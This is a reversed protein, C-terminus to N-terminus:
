RKSITNTIFDDSETGTDDSFAIDSIVINPATQDLTYEQDFTTNNDAIDTIRFILDHTGTALPVDDWIISTSDDSDIKATIDTWILGADDSAVSGYLIDGGATDLALDLTASITQTATNTIFDDSETGTDDSFAIASIVINPATQDLTYEQDFTTNNDAIDTIRFILDHTGTALPVDDWIISTSDDSDIKATIDTWILGADDSAVSGYLIDGGATDLALDLTASITQTATNTIFDDSKTGTDNSFSVASFDIDPATQDLTYEQDFTTNNDAIDTIRFILDHTGTALPVDDWIISTSNSADIKATIDTWILGADDSAVSGYLIDGGATDLALDLTASITQTATNTIFDDSETGTDDSFAIDSIVINPATQDLTYEQDFTTNNDAIDTIRFILDHTGTALPVDDWIISTSDDSDIKATIDTWILGADDSAVSGYLIDGGDIDLAASLTASITQEATNTIFDDSETGTDDSFAIDSIVINPATQDLTYEQDFTTNNDAIDTIRFILDHTGTALPVDDWIISTSDDSDIKATIDTWILGADDSAVSGYLIDGGATDLALDLTASITQTATNTIFDDSETGTDDSFAIASIVINPATQDLTYEQDFTTNNDAIDTIRFILDHTGTALPVDDWIISTSDDSDIKATIDTWILGADDSAVSGYLIDGGATDLALDLTASITQTATNTIFDDSETGTDDSFAIASIVINPATQDLTYEQDFTTNNDAIDTIRFILDHTGTALPVDDWIISTSDDSDIKATIDTWILGADDSAVSGYLIDGGATDLALDLTASITQTATNTIFDDSETGTDDSFAIASIVINPATQDLTYEQDFTTNNDAIDTIRFILDHTGTALPVDDWIISTSDDSDIKATIDTWILGADDSAVSGYLIDGGATDLALDLTASITQTATNTIFDDSETGTDDSFAIDSIVINPATQDLTYEQDFTTNNDAIDTIRFILKHTGLVLDVEGWTITTTGDIESISDTIDLWIPASNNDSSVSGYLIDGGATDLAASLTASITQKASNTIFDDSKTGTDNSFSVASFDIDPATQDLTYEQDFTTNNDAIDTIRFILDHTGTALPVNDWIISTSNSADIKATIDTWILGADDSAVSGYLIDGGATDLALDLTASITQTATNTIFDDSETGTDDSFAIDSIVINPATQDLTYEQDFTTNNDAIDTIRFILDHTGTALPVDDWIISTSNSADIKATIDTWILGADDSAVSGYLIDGGATDLALDLTASITQTATNTIFDDSETGTDDSFAIASIVINPATQDLTYEQDFTTNNDAIDTIRFILDHTGTALPVDDWIISTSDDSDIKATIDTWILGADNSAVSGYLIDGGATDLALDLTASITQTATNTIFDDSETGTDDSFAIDSIVINPATQDLTYEQDFTTNNDAIDTIRFILDHTGTALPVDDWIISTSDDSDIKATIDTWILGADDSAVSGYLIDGGATDLALDLTASITQTATNTIFDDSETGTDDSFAIASIVINPATQDLTYEQDFTTNNDAIDTIRFILDHTGTALPVDDWIISTSDDSDIKATIDTWILGADDSAVSGYLIDGGATDLALDLTASITQTATNTIFDDSETGTDDSFAIASIVINPATQDLTYEQDFTTNNDAIDTIRFILDHTGTALPVDDWIISTSDDSDIKATIDTWILGADDSAVSGYLIDGGATDLALDLTASITQTATNTIFDDSETGTDDSFAIASIVINPATQDLTYEQDFTTNNDAIDTIRFILKHTGLVLDVEGWTITTTGDIESISDTIDLWIPASNNDSSVSGYLIDGGATDLAASLTASITQKASNTIFDDSKTGTDNSFSVASFDIDPATQDLTYEQDFTTNNDAIDTIRFILDHTGTALPVDDWIISTSNSADIKATIDTWILGADDSAVSGYLIDGGATDLALDLTASITQTATNTIFDDSETGTDDSFAIDSIVINPATQDLTYEQDFTTNNDAIDTIRFILDHTGTALPVDDWIISTSDDSDIKATIDTWILGADDSAVSGYLIDGGATDLALDLTASITQTATNTIFDDSETGTDDSFAIDSIVINPATQDLTYEQDFTTNNDAIDTIRFILDHTGTALPVDDWIISTSNSTDIKATIDTWILGADDSAVSGYLIDGGATDLALDLTASITQTATNTIFDDSETGTDDSFAIDSIVINPATQDLTYEQDFTTNNDAIDTIRFILDHTGTALPVDDWIISTSNSTDIKATIDTWILGADDSAVSGYLIDGGATDLALDLTASITQTATNTIFDDSETGTDDSFAIDSIVINPATQDLTYEQDFTTNNDAIDTIRFILDHTGTALPVDDWIISTSNSTDIKATIDTWILGADDSAVSGYLIDGGATDLALDLTASITQTATNTIFDDSETGTDDSFAIDSIVINPATQDLTYEQDFTTNNDAIDTIRFILDHTGTALPVDDWIISISNSTDIKATIDTWILGADDSAVSGYLIDGGATDLALDLTASITQTATNTIFDDSETGTDDSFAIDSIVINPATQDLTYEQDFTTNNDAIDTIRFILDHTGTALPVDDWIISTSNSADIKATIDTWILGADDSAVSGYLIDGGATDLALDLTASITQTATNTIFDDSETGTDDSFAIASIVINPATQDLTYEQDFTTNNDAIDTIRFILDHTGTALPVDDWIISTSDDSDIKATIDTWILGADDSAVSGYLIDGGATDLALDLTASITQTATNTIFDDSETGTDDSFAIDSIVINPATQDLTYKKDFTTNNDAIDTIRFILDHTGTALPVDDWIISTSNGTDIKATIDTWILGADDSAVSGYLVDGGDTDLALDLTASITQTATNTIFDDSETGTDDSFAIASIVINPATQDLTYEQDFTTNNDAIDTIRFILDHTGTALPVDDWIISTSDDSDIKATIDTWILGADDSAVSGYLIDGGATDLALDLTASITQTATNTIFDDSETGTDDSFAIASIVINPATQDLTYEQDFTTNNDAIDTIRLILKHVGEKLEVENWTIISTGDVESISGTIDVWAPAGDEGSGVSGYLIDGTDLAASLTASIAQSATNTILDTNSTGTDASLAIASIKQAPPETDLTYAQTAVQGDNGAADVVKFQIISEAVSSLTSSWSITKGDQTSISNTLSEWIVDGSDDSAVSGYLIDGDELSANLEATITQAPTNTIFDADSTGTDHSIDITSITQSPPVTDIYESDDLTVSVYGASVHGYGDTLVISTTVTGGAAVSYHSSMVSYKASYLGQGIETFGTLTGGNFNSFAQLKLSTESKGAQIYVTATDGIGYASDDDQLYVKDIVPLNEVEVTVVSQDKAGDNDTVTLQFTLTIAGRNDSDAVIEPATFSTTIENNENTTPDAALTVTGPSVEVLNGAGDDKVEVWSYSTITGDDTDSASGTLTVEDGEDVRQASGAYATPSNNVTIVVTDTATNNGSDTVTLQFTIATDASINTPSTFSPTATNASSLDVTSVSNGNSDVEQWSYDITEKYNNNSGAEDPDEYGASLTVQKGENVEKGDGADATPPENVNIVTITIPQTVTDTTGDSVQITVQYVNDNNADAPAEYNPNEAFRIKGNASISLDGYDDSDEDLSYTLTEGEPDSANVEYVTAGTGINEDVSVSFVTNNIVPLEDIGTLKITIPHEDTYTGDSVEITVQYNNDTNADSFKDYDPLDKFKIVGSDSDIEFFESDDGDLSYTLTDNEPDTADADYVTYDTTFSAESVSVTTTTDVIIPAENVDSIKIAVTQSNSTNEGDSVTLNLTYSKAGTEYDLGANAAASIQGSDNITLSDTITDLIKWDKFTTNADGDTAQVSDFLIKGDDDLIYALSGEASNEDISFTQNPTIVPTNDNLDNVSISLTLDDTLGGADNAQVVVEYINNGSASPTEYDPPSNFTLEPETSDSLNFLGEDAGGGISYTLTDGADVDTATATYVFSESNEYVNATATPSAFTPAENIDEISISLTLDASLGQADTVRLQVEYNKKDDSAEYDPPDNFSLGAGSLNFSDQDTGGIISYIHTDGADDKVEATYIVGAYNEEASTTTSSTFIPAENVNSVSIRLSLDSSLNGSDTVQLQVEYTNDVNSDGPTEYDPAATFSIVGSSADISFKGSDTGSLSYTLSDNEPDSATATYITGTENEFTSATTSSTFSPAENVNTVNVTFSASASSGDSSTAYINLSYSTTGSEYDLSDTGNYSVTGSSTDIDFLGSSTAGNVFSYTVTNNTGDADSAQVKIGASAGASANEAIQGSGTSSPTSVSYENVDIVTVTLEQTDSGTSDSVKLEVDYVNNGGSDAASEYDPTNKFSIAGSGSAISFDTADTGAISFTLEGSEDYIITPTYITNAIAVGEASSTSATGQYFVPFGSVDVVAVTLDMSASLSGDSVNIQAEYINNTGTDKPNEYDPPSAFRISGSSSNITLQSSDAGSISYTLVDGDSDTAVATYVVQTDNEYFDVSQLGKSFAPAQNIANESNVELSVSTSDSLAGDSVTLTFTFTGINAITFTTTPATTSSLSISQVSPQSWSYDLKDGDPDSSSSGDLIITTSTTLESSDADSSVSINAKPASNQGSDSGSSSKTGSDACAMLTIVLLASLTARSYSTLKRAIKTVMCSIVTM